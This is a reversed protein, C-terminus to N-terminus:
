SIVLYSGQQAMSRSVHREYPENLKTVFHPHLTRVAKEFDTATDGEFEQRLGLDHLTEYLEHVYRYERLTLSCLRRWNTCREGSRQGCPLISVFSSM